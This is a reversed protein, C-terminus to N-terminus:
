AQEPQQQKTRAAPRPTVLEIEVIQGCVPPIPELGFKSLDNKKAKDIM